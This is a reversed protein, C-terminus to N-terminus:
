RLGRGSQLGQFAGPSTQLGPEDASVVVVKEFQAPVLNPQNQGIDGALAHM